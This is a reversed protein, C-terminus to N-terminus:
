VKGFIKGLNTGRRQLLKQSREFFRVTKQWEIVTFARGLRCYWRGDRWIQLHAGCKVASGPFKRGATHPNGLVHGGCVLLEATLFPGDSALSHFKSGLALQNQGAM